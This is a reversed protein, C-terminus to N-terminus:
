QGTLAKVHALLQQLDFPKAVFVRAGSARVREELEPLPTGSMAIVPMAPALEHARRLSLGDEEPEIHFDILAVDPTGGRLATELEATTAAAVVRAGEVRFVESLLFRISAEDDVVLVTM